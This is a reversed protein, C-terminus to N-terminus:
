SSTYYHGYCGFIASDDTMNMHFSGYNDSDHIGVVYFVYASTQLQAVIMKDADGTNVGNIAFFTAMPHTFSSTNPTFPLNTLKINDIGSGEDTLTFRAQFHVCNGVKQYQGSFTGQPAQQLTAYTMTPTFTGEEYDDLANAAATDSGFKLGDSDFRFQVSGTNSITTKPSGENHSFDIFSQSAENRISLTGTNNNAGNTSLINFAQGRSDGTELQITAVGAEYVHLSKQPNTTGIGVDGADNIYLRTTGDVDLLLASGSNANEPDASLRVKSSDWGLRHDQSSNYGFRIEPDSSDHITLPADPSATGIGLKSSNIHVNTEAILTNATNSGTIVRNDANNNITTQNAGASIGLFQIVQSQNLHEPIGSGSSVRGVLREEPIDQVKDFTVANDAIDATAITANKIGSTSVQTLGM